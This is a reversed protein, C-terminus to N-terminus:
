PKTSLSDIQVQTMPNRHLPSVIANKSNQAKLHYLSVGKRPQKRRKLKQLSDTGYRMDSLRRLGGRCHDTKANKLGCTSEGFVVMLVALEFRGLRAM